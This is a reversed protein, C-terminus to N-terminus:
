KKKPSPKSKEKDQKQDAEEHVQRGYGRTPTDQGPARNKDPAQNSNKKKDDMAPLNPLKISKM